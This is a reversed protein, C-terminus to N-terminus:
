EDDYNYLMGHTEMEKLADLAVGSLFEPEATPMVSIVHLARIAIDLQDSTIYQDNHEYDDHLM